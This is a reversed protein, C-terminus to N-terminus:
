IWHIDSLKIMLEPQVFQAVVIDNAGNELVLNQHYLNVQELRLASTAKGTANLIARIDIKDETSNFNFLTDGADQVSTFSIVDTGQSLQIFDVGQGGIITDAGRGGIIVDNGKGGFILDNGSNGMIVDNADTGTITESYVSGQLPTPVSTGMYADLGLSRLYTSPSAYDVDGTKEFGYSKPNSVFRDDVNRPGTPTDYQFYEYTKSGLIYQNGDITVNVPKNTQHNLQFGTRGQEGHLIINDEVKNNYTYADLETAQGGRDMNRLMIGDSGKSDMTAVLNHEITTGSTNRSAIQPSSYAANTGNRLAVNFTIDNGDECIEYDFGSRGNLIAHNSYMHSNTVGVDGWFGIGNNQTILNNQLTANNQGGLKMGGGWLFDAYNNGHLYISDVISNDGRGSIQFGYQGNNAYTGGEMTANGGLVIGVGHNQIFNMDLVKWGVSDQGHIAGVMHPNAYKSVTFNQLTLNDGNNRSMLNEHFGIETLMGKPNPNDGSLYIKNGQQYFEGKSLEALSGVRKYLVDNIFLDQKTRAVESGWVNPDFLVGDTPANTDAAHVGSLTWRGNEQVWKSSDYVKSGKFIAEGDGQGILKQGNKMSLDTYGYYVGKALVFTTGEPSKDFAAQINDGPKLYVNGKITIDDYDGTITGAAGPTPTPTDDVQQMLDFSMSKVSVDSSEGTSNIKNGFYPISVIDVRAVEKVGFDLSFKYEEASIKTGTGIGLLYEGVDNGAEDYATLMARENNGGVGADGATLRSLVLDFKGTVKGVGGDSDNFAFSIRESTGDNFHDIQNSYRGGSVGLGTANHTVMAAAGAKGFGFVDVFSGWEAMSTTVNSLVTAASIDTRKTTYTM